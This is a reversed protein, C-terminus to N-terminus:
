GRRGGGKQPIKRVLWFVFGIVAAAITIGVALYTWDGFIGMFNIGTLVADAVNLGTDVGTFELPAAGAAPALAALAATGGLVSLAAKSSKNKRQKFKEFFKKM